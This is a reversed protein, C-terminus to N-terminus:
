HVGLEALHEASMIEEIPVTQLLKEDTCELLVLAAAIQELLREMEFEERRDKPAYDHFETGIAKLVAM